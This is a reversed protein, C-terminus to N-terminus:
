NTRIIRYYHSNTLFDLKGWSGNGLSSQSKSIKITNDKTNIIIGQKRQLSRIVEDVSYNKRAM